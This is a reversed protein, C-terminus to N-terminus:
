CTPPGALSCGPSEAGSHRFRVAYAETCPRRSSKSSFFACLPHALRSAYVALHPLESCQSWLAIATFYLPGSTMSGRLRSRMKTEMRESAGCDAEGDSGYCRGSRVCVCSRVNLVPPTGTAHGILRDDVPNWPCERDSVVM